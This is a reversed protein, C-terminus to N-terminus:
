LSIPVNKSMNVGPKAGMIGEFLNFKPSIDFPGMKVNEGGSM